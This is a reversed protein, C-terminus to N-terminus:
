EIEARLNHRIGTRAKDLSGGRFFCVCLVYKGPVLSKMRSESPDLFAEIGDRLTRFDEESFIRVDPQAHAFVHCLCDPIPSNCKLDYFNSYRLIPDRAAM